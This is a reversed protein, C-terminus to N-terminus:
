GALRELQDIQGTVMELTIGCMCQMRDDGTLPCKNKV